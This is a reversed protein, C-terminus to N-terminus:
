ETELQSLSTLRRAPLPLGDADTSGADDTEGRTRPWGVTLIIQMIGSDYEAVCLRDQPIIYHKENKAERLATIQGPTIPSQGSLWSGELAVEWGGYTGSRPDYDQSLLDEIEIELRALRQEQSQEAGLNQSLGIM